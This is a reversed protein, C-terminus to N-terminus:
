PNQVGRFHGAYPLAIMLILAIASIWWGWKRDWTQTFRILVRNNGAGAAILMQGNGQKERPQVLHGNVELRWAPYCFLKVAVEDAASMQVTFLKSEADWQFVHIAAHAPGVVTVRRADKDIAPLEAGVPKYEDTGEYGIQDSMNDQMERLDAAQDWWPAQVRWWGFGLILLFGACITIRVWWRKIGLSLFLTLIMSLCLLWRWPFQMFRLKPLFDWLLRSLPFLLASCGAAWVTLAVWLEGRRRLKYAAWAAGVTVAMEGVALLSMIRNFHDHDPDTTHIFLFNDQPRSGRAIAAAITVWKQEYIAPLLYFAALAAGLAVAAAATLLIRPSRRRWAIILVLLALSYHIMVAAPANTLWAAALLLALPITVRRAEGARLVLLLLLPLLCSALLEALASRWYVVVLNYPNIAYFTAAFIADRRDLWKRALVFMSLGAAVLAIWIFVGPVVVWPLLGALAGGLTWSAPPYFVFRPSGYGFNAQAAWRPYIVGQKWQELVELWSYTHFEVDHGSPMGLFFFPVEVLFAAVGVSV